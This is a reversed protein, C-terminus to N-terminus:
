RVNEIVNLQTTFLERIPSFYAIALMVGWTLLTLGILASKLGSNITPTAFSQLAIGALTCAVALPRSWARFKLLGVTSVFLGIGIALGFILCAWLAWEPMPLFGSVSQELSMKAHAYALPFPILGPILQDVNGAATALVYSALILSRFYRTSPAM